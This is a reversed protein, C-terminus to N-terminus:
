CEEYPLLEYYTLHSQLLYNIELTSQWMESATRCFQQAGDPETKKKKKPQKYFRFHPKKM